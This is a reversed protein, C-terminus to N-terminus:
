SWDPTKGCSGSMLWTSKRKPMSPIACKTKWFVKGDLNDRKGEVYDTMMFISNQLDEDSVSVTQALNLKDYLRIYFGHDFVVAAVSSLLAAILFSFGFSCTFGQADNSPLWIYAPSGTPRACFTWSIKSARNSSPLM